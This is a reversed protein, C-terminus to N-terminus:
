MNMSCHIIKLIYTNGLSYYMYAIKFGIWNRYDTGTILTFIHKFILLEETDIKPNLKTALTVRLIVPIQLYQLSVLTDTRLILVWFYWSESHYQVKIQM